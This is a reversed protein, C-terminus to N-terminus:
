GCTAPAVTLPYSGTLGLAPNTSSFGIADGTSNLQTAMNTGNLTTGDARRATFTIVTGGVGNDAEDCIAYSFQRTPAMLDTFTESGNGNTDNASFQSSPIPNGPPTVVSGQTGDPAYAYLDLNAATAWTLTARLTPTIPVTVTKKKKKKCKKKKASAAGKKGKKCGKKKAVVAGSTFDGATAPGAVVVSILMASAAVLALAKFTKSM